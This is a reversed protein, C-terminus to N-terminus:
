LETSTKPAKKGAPPVGEHGETPAFAKKLRDGTKKELASRSSETAAKATKARAKLVKHAKQHRKPDSTIEAHKHLTDADNEAMYDKDGGM